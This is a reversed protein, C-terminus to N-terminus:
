PSTPQQQVRQNEQHHKTSAGPATQPRKTIVDLFPSDVRVVPVSESRVHNVERARAGAYITPAMLTQATDSLKETDFTRTAPGLVSGFAQTSEKGIAANADKKHLLKTPEFTARDPETIAEVVPLSIEDPSETAPISYNTVSTATSDKSTARAPFTTWTQPVFQSCCQVVPLTRSPNDEVSRDDIVESATTDGTHFQFDNPSDLYWRTIIQFWELDRLDHQSLINSLRQRELSSSELRELLWEDIRRRINPWQLRTEDLDAESLSRPLISHRRRPEHVDPHSRVGRSMSSETGDLITRDELDGRSNGSLNDYGMLPADVLEDINVYSSTNVQADAFRTLLTAENPQTRPRQSMPFVGIHGSITEVFEEELETYTWEEQNYKNEADDYDTEVVGLKDRAEDAKQIAVLLSSPLPIDQNLMYRKFLSYAAGVEAGTQQRVDRLERRKTHLRYRAGILTERSERVEERFMQLDPPDYSHARQPPPPPPPPPFKQTAPDLSGRTGMKSSQLQLVRPELGNM